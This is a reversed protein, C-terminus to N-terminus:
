KTSMSKPALKKEQEIRQRAEKLRQVHWPNKNTNLLECARPNAMDIINALHPQRIPRPQRAATPTYGNAFPLDKLLKTAHQQKLLEKLLDSSM